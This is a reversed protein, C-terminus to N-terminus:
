ALGAKLHPTLGAHIATVPSGLNIVDNFHCSTATVGDVVQLWEALGTVHGLCNREICHTM